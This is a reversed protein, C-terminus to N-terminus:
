RHAKPSEQICRYASSVILYEAPQERREETNASLLAQDEDLLRKVAKMQMETRFFFRYTHQKVLGFLWLM